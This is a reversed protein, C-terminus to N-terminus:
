LTISFDDADRLMNFKERFSKLEALSLDASIVKEETTGASIILEGKPSIIQSLGNHVIGNGDIGTRNSGAVYCQNEIARARLLTSWANIRPEPWSAVYIALDYENSNRSWVPFRLDYCIFPSIKWGKYGFAMRSKGATFFRDEEGMSFLHRKDYHYDPGPSVFVFRNFIRGGEVVIYSGCVAFGGEISQQKMWGFTPGYHEEGLSTNMSFGTSFMEPLMVIETQHYLPKMMEKLRTLNVEKKEWEPNFQVVSIKM